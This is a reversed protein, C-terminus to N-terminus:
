EEKTKNASTDNVEAIPNTVVTENESVIKTAEQETLVECGFLAAKEELSVDIMRMDSESLIVFGEGASKRMSELGIRAVVEIPAKIYKYEM